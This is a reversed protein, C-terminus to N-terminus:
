GSGARSAAADWTVGLADAGKSAAAIAHRAQHLAVGAPVCARWGRRAPWRAHLWRGDERRRVRARWGWIRVAERHELIRTAPCWPRRLEGNEDVYGTEAVEEDEVGAGGDDECASAADPDVGEAALEARLRAALAPLAQRAAIRESPKIEKGDQTLCLCESHPLPM